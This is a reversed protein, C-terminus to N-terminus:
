SIKQTPSIKSKYKTLQRTGIHRVEDYDFLSMDHKKKLEGFIKELSKDVVSDMLSLGDSITELWSSVSFSPVIEAHQYVYAQCLYMGDKKYYNLYVTCSLLPYSTTVVFAVSKGTKRVHANSGERLHEFPKSIDKYDFGMIANDNLVLKDGSPAYIFGGVAKIKKTLAAVEVKRNQSFVDLAVLGQNSNTEHAVQTNCNSEKSKKYNSFSVVNKTM